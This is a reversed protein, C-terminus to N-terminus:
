LANAMRAFRDYSPSTGVKSSHGQRVARAIRFSDAEAYEHGTGRTLRQLEHKPGNIGDVLRAARPLTSRWARPRISETADAFHFWWAEMMQVPVVPHGGVALLQQRLRAEEAGGPDPRDADRHVVVARVAHGRGQYVRVVDAIRDVWGRM